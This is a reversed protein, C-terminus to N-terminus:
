LSSGAPSGIDQKKWMKGDIVFFIVLIVILGLGIEGSGNVLKGVNNTMAHLLVVTLVSYSSKNYVWTFLLTLPITWLLRPLFTMFGDTTYFGNYYLPLHWFSWLISIVLTAILPSHKKQLEKQLFGRWGFEENGGFFFFTSFFGLTFMPDPTFLPGEVNLGFLRALLYSCAFLVPLILLGALYWTIKAKSFLFSRLYNERLQANWANSLNFALVFALFGYILWGSLSVDTPINKSMEESQHDTLFIRLSLVLIISVFFVAFIGKSPITFSSGSRLITIVLGAVLPGCGGLMNLGLQIDKPLTILVPLFWFGFTIAFTILIFSIVPYTIIRKKM